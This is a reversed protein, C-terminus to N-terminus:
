RNLTLRGLRGEVGGAWCTGEACHVTNYGPGELRTWTAGGDESVSSGGPGVAVFREAGAHAIGYQVGSLGPSSSVRWSRGDDDSLLLNEASSDRQQYDGGVAVGRSGRGIALGFLGKAASGSVPTEFASWSKGRDASYLVRARAGGVTVIWVESSGRLTIATGSAAFSAEGPLMSPLREPAAPQWTSGGDETLLVVPKGELPDGFAIGHQADWFGIGDLFIGKTSNEYQLQWTTGGDRTSYIRGLSPGEFATGAVWARRADLAHVGVLFLGSAGPISDVRWRAGADESHAVVGAKGAAWIVREDVAHLGRFEARTNSEVAIWQQASLPQWPAALLWLLPRLRM